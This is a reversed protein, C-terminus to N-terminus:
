LKRNKEVAKAIIFINTGLGMKNFFGPLKIEKKSTLVSANITNARVLEFGNEKLQLTLKRVTYYRCHGISNESLRFDMFRPHYGFVSRIRNEM